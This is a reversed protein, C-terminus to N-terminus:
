VSEHRVSKAHRNHLIPQRPIWDGGTGHRDIFPTPKGVGKTTLDKRLMAM